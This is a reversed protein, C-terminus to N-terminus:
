LLEGQAAPEAEVAAIYELRLKQIQSWILNQQNWDDTHEAYLVVGTAIRVAIDTSSQM